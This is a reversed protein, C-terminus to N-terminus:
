GVKKVLRGVFIPSLHLMEPTILYTFEHLVNLVKYPGFVNLLEGTAFESCIAANSTHLKRNHLLLGAIDWNDYKTGVAARIRELHADQQEQSCPIEYIYDRTPKSYNGPREQIGDGTHAGIWTGEPTGFEVHSFISNTAWRISKSVFSDSTVFRVKISPM